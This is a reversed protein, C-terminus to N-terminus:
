CLGDAMRRSNHAKRDVILGVDLKLLTSTPYNEKCALVQYAVHRRKAKGARFRGPLAAMDSEDIRIATTIHGRLRVESKWM